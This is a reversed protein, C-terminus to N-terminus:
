LFKEKDFFSQEVNDRKVWNYLYSGAAYPKPTVRRHGLMGNLPQTVISRTAERLQALSRGHPDSLSTIIIRHEGEGNM